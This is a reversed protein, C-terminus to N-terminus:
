GNGTRHATFINYRVASRFEGNAAHHFRQRFLHTTVTAPQVDLARGDTREHDVSSEAFSGSDLSDIKDGKAYNIM